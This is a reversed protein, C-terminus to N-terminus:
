NIHDRYVLAIVKALVMATLATVLWPDVAHNWGQVIIAIVIVGSGTLYAIRGAMLKHLDEREDGSSEKWVLSAFIFFITAFIITGAMALATPMWFMFPNVLVIAIAVLVLSLITEKLYNNKM